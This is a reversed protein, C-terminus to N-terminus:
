SKVGRDSPPAAPRESEVPCYDFCRGCGLCLERDATYEVRTRRTSYAVLKGAVVLGLFLGALWGGLHFDSRIEDADAFLLEPTEGSGRFVDSADTTERVRGEEEALVQEALAVRAHGKALEPSLFAGFWGMGGIILPSIALMAVLGRRGRMRDQAVTFENPENIAGYPCSEECLRCNTCVDPTISVRKWSLKAVWGLLVGYPCLFRCYPRGVFVAILALCAGFVMMNFPASLRFLGVFPDYQCIVYGAGTVAFLVALALYAYPLIGLGASLWAPLSRPRLLLVEQVAGLPCVAACFTRGWLLTTVLPVCFFLITVLLIPASPDFLAESVNQLSGVACVCGERLFGFWVVSAIALLLLGLRSRRKYTLWTAFLIALVLIAVDAWPPVLGRYGPFVTEPQVYEPGLEPPPYLFEEAAAEGDPAAQPVFALFLGLANM